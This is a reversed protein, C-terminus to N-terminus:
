EHFYIWVRPGLQGGNQVVRYATDPPIGVNTLRRMNIAIEVQEPSFLLPGKGSGREPNDPSIWGRQCWYHVQRYSPGLKVLDHASLRTESNVTMHNAGTDM